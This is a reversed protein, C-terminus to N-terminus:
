GGSSDLHAATAREHRRAVLQRLVVPVLIAVGIITSVLEPAILLIASARCVPREWGKMRTLM